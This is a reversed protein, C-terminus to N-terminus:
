CVYMSVNFYLRHTFTHIRYVYSHIQTHPLMQAQALSIITIAISEFIYWCGLMIVVFFCAVNEKMCVYVVHLFLYFFGVSLSILFVNLLAGAAVAISKNKLSSILNSVSTLISVFSLVVNM